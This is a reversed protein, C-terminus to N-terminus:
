AAVSIRGPRALVLLAAEVVQPDFQTGANRRLEERAEEPTFPPQYPRGSIMAEYADCVFM